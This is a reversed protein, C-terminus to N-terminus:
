AEGTLGTAHGVAPLALGRARKSNSGKHISCHSEIYGDAEDGVVRPEVSIRAADLFRLRAHIAFAVFGSFIRDALTGARFVGDEFMKVVAVTFPPRQITAHKRNMAADACGKVRQSQHADSPFGLVAAALNLGELIGSAKTPAAGADLLELLYRFLVPESTPLALGPLDMGRHWRIFSLVAAGRKALTSTARKTFAMELSRRAGDVDDGDDDETLTAGECNSLITLWTALVKERATADAIEPPVELRPRKARGFSTQAAFRPPVLRRKLPQTERRSTTSVVPPPPPSPLPQPQLPVPPQYLAGAFARGVGLGRSLVVGAYGVEWPLLLSTPLPAPQDAASALLAAWQDGM